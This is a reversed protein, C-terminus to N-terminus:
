TWPIEQCWPCIEGPRPDGEGECAPCNPDPRIGKWAWRALAEGAREGLAALAALARTTQRVLWWVGPGALAVVQDHLDAFAGAASSRWLAERDDLCARCAWGDWRDLTEGERDGCYECLDTM